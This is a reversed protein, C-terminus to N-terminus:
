TPSEDPFEVAVSAGMIGGKEYEDNLKRVADVIMQREEHSKAMRALERVLVSVSDIEGITPAPYKEELTSVIEANLSRAGSAAVLRDHLDPPIRLTIRSWNNQNVM